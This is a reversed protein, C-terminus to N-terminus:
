APVLAALERLRDGELARDGGGHGCDRVGPARGPRGGVRPHHAGDRCVGSVGAPLLVRHVARCLPPRRRGRRSLRRGHLQGPAFVWVHPAPEPPGGTRPRTARTPRARADADGAVFTALALYFRGFVGFDMLYVPYLAADREARYRSVSRELHAKAARPDGLHFTVMGAMNHAAMAFEDSAPNLDAAALLERVLGYATKLEARGWHFLCLGYTIPFRRPAGPLAQCREYARKQVAGFALSGPGM